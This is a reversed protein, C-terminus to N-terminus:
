PRGRYKLVHVQEGVSVTGDAEHVLNQGFLRRGDVLRFKALSRLPEAKGDVVGTKQDTMTIKCRECPKVVHFTVEGIRITEWDDEEFPEAGHLVLNPRFRDMSLPGSGAPLRRNLESLSAASIASLGRM